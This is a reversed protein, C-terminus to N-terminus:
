RTLRESEEWLRRALTENRALASPRGKSATPIFYEGSVGALQPSTAVYLQTLAGDDANLFLPTTVFLNLAAFLGETVHGKVSAAIHRNIETKICGPHLSNCTVGTGAM